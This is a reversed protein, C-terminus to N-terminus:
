IHILSLPRSMRWYGAVTPQYFVSATRFNPFTTTESPRLLQGNPQRMPVSARFGIPSGRLGQTALLPYREPQSEFGPPLTPAAGEVLPVYYSDSDFGGAMFVVWSDLHVTDGEARAYIRDGFIEYFTRRDLDGRVPRRQVPLVSLSEPGFYSRGDPPWAPSTTFSAWNTVNVARGDGDSSLPFLAPDPGAWWMRDPAFGVRFMVVLRGGGARPPVVLHLEQVGISFEERGPREGSASPESVDVFEDDGETSAGASMAAATGASRADDDGAEGRHVNRWRIDKLVSHAPITELTFVPQAATGDVYIFYDAHREVRPVLDRGLTAVPAVFHLRALFGPHARDGHRSGGQDATASVRSTADDTLPAVSRSCGVTTSVGLVALVLFCSMHRM